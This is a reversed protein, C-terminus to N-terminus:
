RNGAANLHATLSPLDVGALTVPLASDLPLDPDLHVPAELGIEPVLVTARTGRREVLV